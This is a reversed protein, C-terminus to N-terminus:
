RAVRFGTADSAAVDEIELADVRAMPPGERCWALMRDVADDAEFTASLRGDPLNRVSGALGLDRALEACTARFFVQVRGSITVRVSGCARSRRVGRLRADGLVSARRYAPVHSPTWRRYSALVADDDDVNLVIERVGRAAQVHLVSLVHDGDRVLLDRLRRGRAGVDHVRLVPM